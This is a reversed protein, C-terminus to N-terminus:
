KELLSLLNEALIKARNTGTFLRDIKSREHSPVGFPYDSGFLIRDTGYDAAFDEIESASALATDVYVTQGEFLDAKKLRGYGGNLAGFHPIISATRSNIRKILELTNSFEDEIIVPYQKECIHEIFDFCKKSFFDYKPENSHRHWKIGSFGEGPFLFDNWVFWYAYIRDTRLSSLYEHVNKRSMQYYDDDTFYPDYRDYIEEVPSFLVGGDIQGKQWLPMITELPITYGCHVHADLVLM